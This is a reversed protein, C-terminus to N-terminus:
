KTRLLRLNTELAAVETEKREFAPTPPIWLGKITKQRMIIEKLNSAELRANQLKTITNMLMKDNPAKGAGELETKQVQRNWAEVEYIELRRLNDKVSNIDTQCCDPGFHGALNTDRMMQLEAKATKLQRELMEIEASISTGSVVTARNKVRVMREGFKLSSISEDAHQPDSSLNIVVSTVSKGGFSSRLLMTLTSTRYPIHSSREGLQKIVRGLATLSSNIELAESQSVGTVGSKGIRESGALDVFMFQQVKTTDGTTRTLHLRVLCHSRSSRVNLLHGKAIRTAEVTRSLRAVDTPTRVLWREEGRTEFENSFTGSQRRHEKAKERANHCILCTCSVPHMKGNVVLGSSKSRTGGVVLHKRKNLLDYARDQYVEIASAALTGMTSENNMLKMLLRPFVGWAPPIAGNAKVLAAETLSGPPGFQTYTKGSGTQGFALLTCDYGERLKDFLGAGLSEYAVLQDSGKVISKAYGFRRGNIHIDGASDVDVVSSESGPKIRISVSISTSCGAEESSTDKSSGSSKVRSSKM